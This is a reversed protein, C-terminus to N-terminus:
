RLAAQSAQTACGGIGQGSATTCNGAALPTFYIQSSGATGTTSDISIGSSGGAVTATAVTGLAPPWAAPNTVDFSMICGATTPCGITTGTESSGTV